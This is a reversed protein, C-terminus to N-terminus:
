PFIKDFLSIASKRCDFINQICQEQPVVKYSYYEDTIYLIM